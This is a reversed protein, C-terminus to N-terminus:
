VVVPSDAGPPTPPAPPAAVLPTATRLPPASPQKDDAGAPALVVVDALEVGTVETAPSTPVEKNRHAAGFCCCLASLAGVLFGVIVLAIAVPGVRAGGGKKSSSGVPAPSDGAGDYALVVDFHYDGNTADQWRFVEDSPPWEALSAATYVAEHEDMTQWSDWDYCVFDIPANRRVCGFHYFEMFHPENADLFTNRFLVSPICEDM